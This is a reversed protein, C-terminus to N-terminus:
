IIHPTDVVRFLRVGFRLSLLVARRSVFSHAQFERPMRDLILIFYLHETLFLAIDKSIYLLCGVINELRVSKEHLLDLIRKGLVLSPNKIVEPVASRLFQASTHREAQHPVVM